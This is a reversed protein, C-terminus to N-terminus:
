AAAEKGHNMRWMDGYGSPDENFSEVGSKTAEILWKMMPIYDDPTATSKRQPDNFCSNYFTRLNDAGVGAALLASKLKQAEEAGGSSAVPAAAPTAKPAPASRAKSSQPSGSTVGSATNGDDDEDAVMGLMGALGYRRAYTIASGVGQPDDKQPKLSLESAMWQGSEHLLITTVTAQGPSSSVPQMIVIGSTALPGRATETVSLLDAYKNRLHPNVSEKKAAEIKPLAQVLAKAIKDFQPSTRCNIISNEQNVAQMQNENNM